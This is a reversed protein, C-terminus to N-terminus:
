MILLDYGLSSLGRNAFKLWVGPGTNRNINYVCTHAHKTTIITVSV